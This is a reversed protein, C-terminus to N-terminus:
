PSSEKKTLAEITALLRAREEEKLREKKENLHEMIGGFILYAVSIAFLFNLQRDTLGLYDYFMNSYKNFTQM